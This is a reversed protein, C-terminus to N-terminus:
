VYRPAFRIQYSALPLPSKKIIEERLRQRDDFLKDNEANTLLLFVFIVSPDISRSEGESAEAVAAFIDKARNFKIEPEKAVVESITDQLSHAHDACAAYILLKM